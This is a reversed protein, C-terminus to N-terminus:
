RCDPGVDRLNTVFRANDLASFPWSFSLFFFSADDHQDIMHVRAHIFAGKRSARCFFRSTLMLDVLTWLDCYSMVCGVSDGSLMNIGPAASDECRQKKHSSMDKDILLFRIINPYVCKKILAGNLNQARAHKDRLGPAKKLPHKVSLFVM